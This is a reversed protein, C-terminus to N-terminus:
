NKDTGDTDETTQREDIVRKSTKKMEIEIEKEECEDCEDCEDLKVTQRTRKYRKKKATIVYTGADLDTFEFFGDADSSTGSFSNNQVNKLKLKVFEIPNGRIDVVNGYIGGKCIEIMTTTGEKVEGSGLTIDLTKTKYDEKEYTLKYNGEALGGFQYYGEEDTSTSDSFGSGVITVAVDRLRFGDEDYVFGFVVGTGPTPLPTLTPPLVPILAFDVVVTVGAEITISQTSPEFDTASATLVYNGPSVNSILYAGAADTTAAYGGRDTSVTAGSIPVIALADVVAGVIIGPTPTTTPSPSPSPSPSPTPEPSPLRNGRHNHCEIHLTADSIYPPKQNSAFM